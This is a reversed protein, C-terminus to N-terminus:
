LEFDMEKLLKKVGEETTPLEEPLKETLAKMDIDQMMEVIQKDDDTLFEKLEEVQQDTLDNSMLTGSITIASSAAESQLERTPLQRIGTVLHNFPARMGVHLTLSRNYEERDHEPLDNGLQFAEAIRDQEELQRSVSQYADAKTEDGRVRPLLAIAQDVDSHSLWSVVTAELGSAGDKLPTQLAMEFAKVPDSRTWSQFVTDLHQQKMSDHLQSEESNIWEITAVPDVEAAASVIHKFPFRRMSSNVARDGLFNSDRRPSSWDSTFPLLELAELPSDQSKGRAIQLYMEDHHKSPFKDLSILAVDPERNSWHRIVNQTVRDQVGKLDAGSLRNWLADPDTEFWVESVASLLDVDIDEGLQVVFEFVVEPDDQSIDSVLSLRPMKSLIRDMQSMNDTSQQDFLEFVAPLSNLGEALVYSAVKGRVQLMQIQDSSDINEFETALESWSTQVQALQPQDLLRTVYEEEFGIEKGIELLESRSLYSGGDVIGRFGRSRLRDDFSTLFKIAENTHIRNWNRMTVYLVTEATRDELQEVMSRAREINISVLKTLVISQLWYTTTLSGSALPNELNDLFLGILEQETAGSVLRLLGRKKEFQDRKENSVVPLPHKTTISSNQTLSRVPKSDLVDQNGRDSQLPESDQVLSPSNDRPVFFFAGVVGVCLLFGVILAALYIRQKPQNM